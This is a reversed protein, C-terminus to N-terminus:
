GGIRWAFAQLCLAVPLLNPRVCPAGAASWGALLRLTRTFTVEAQKCSCVSTCASMGPKHRVPDQVHMRGTPGDKLNVDMYEGREDHVLVARARFVAVVVDM